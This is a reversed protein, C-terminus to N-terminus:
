CRPLYTPEVVGRCMMEVQTPPLIVARGPQIRWLLKLCGAHVQKQDASAGPKLSSWDPDNWDQLEKKMLLDLRPEGALWRLDKTRTVPPLEGPKILCLFSVPLTVGKQGAVWQKGKKETELDLRAMQIGGEEWVEELDEEWRGRYTM